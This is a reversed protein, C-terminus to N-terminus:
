GGVFYLARQMANVADVLKKGYLEFATIDVFSYKGNSVAELSAIDHELSSVDFNDPFFVFDPEAKRIAAASMECNNEDAAVNVGFSSLIDGALTDGTAVELGDGLFLLIKKGTNDSLAEELESVMREAENEESILAGLERYLRKLETVSVPASFARCPIGIDNTLSVPTIILEADLARIADCDPSLASGVRPISDDTVASYDCVACLSGEGGLECIVSTLSPSLSVIGNKGTCGCLFVLMASLLYVILRKM